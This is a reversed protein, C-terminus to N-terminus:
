QGAPDYTKRTATKSASRPTTTSTPPPAAAPGARRTPPECPGAAGAWCPSSGPGPLTVVLRETSHRQKKLGARGRVARGDKYVARINQRLAALDIPDGTHAIM